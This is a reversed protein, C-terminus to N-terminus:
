NCRQVNLVGVQRRNILAFTPLRQANSIRL